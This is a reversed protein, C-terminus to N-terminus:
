ASGVEPGHGPPRQSPYMYERTLPLPRAAINSAKCAMVQYINIWGHAFGFACGALYIEWIRLRRDGAIACARDRNADLRDAWELCTRGYHRRLSEVDTVELGAVAMERAVLSLHPLEGAPFVYRDIFEGVGLGAWRSDVDVSTIGHNLVLGENALLEQIKGFYAPLNKLGVHEFMGVSAIKDFTGVVDRYDCLRVSCRDELGETRIRAQVYDFQNQSLTIGVASAGYQKAARLM